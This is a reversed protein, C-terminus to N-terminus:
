LSADGDYLSPCWVNQDALIESLRPNRPKYIFTWNTAPSHYPADMSIDVGSASVGTTSLVHIGTRRCHELAFQLVTSYSENSEGLSQFDALNARRIPDDQKGRVLVLVAYASLEGNHALTIIALRHEQLAYKFHWELTARDRMALFKNPYRELLQVWFRDFREDFAPCVEIVADESAHAAIRLRRLGDKFSLVFSAPYSLLNPLPIKKRSLWNGLLESYNTIWFSSQDWKGVPVCQGGLQLHAQYSRPNATNSLVIDANKQQLYRDLLFLSYGRHDQDVVWGHGSAGIYTQGGFHYISPINGIHGVIHEGDDLVWGMPWTRNIAKYAPNSIWLDRWEEYGRQPLLGYETALALMQPFDELRLERLKPTRRPKASVNPSTMALNTM